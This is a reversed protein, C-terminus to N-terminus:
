TFLECSKTSHLLSMIIGVKTRTHGDLQSICGVAEVAEVAEM